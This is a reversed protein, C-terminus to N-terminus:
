RKMAVGGKGSNAKDIYADTCIILVRDSKSLGHEMFKALDSGLDLDWYDLKAEIGNEILYTTLEKVWEKHPENDHSYSIFIKPHSM